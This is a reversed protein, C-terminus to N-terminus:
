PLNAGGPITVSVLEEIEMEIPREERVKGIGPAFWFWV